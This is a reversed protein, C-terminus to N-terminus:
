CSSSCVRGGVEWGGGVGGPIQVLIGVHRSERVRFGQTQMCLSVFDRNIRVCPNIGTDMIFSIEHGTDAYM